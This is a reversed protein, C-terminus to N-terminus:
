SYHELFNQILQLGWKHSKEPHCQIAVWNKEGIVVPFPAGYDCTAIELHQHAADLAGHYSHVFYFRADQPIGQFLKHPKAHVQNWGIHPIKLPEQGDPQRFKIVQGPILGLGECGGNEEGAEFLIQLGVCIGMFPKEKFAKIVEDKLGSQVLQQYCDGMAGVGPLVVRRASRIEEPDATIQVTYDRGLLKAAQEFGSLVSHLNGRGYDVIAIDLSM